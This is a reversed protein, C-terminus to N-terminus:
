CRFSINVLYPMGNVKLNNSLQPKHQLDFGVLHVLIQRLNQQVFREAVYVM